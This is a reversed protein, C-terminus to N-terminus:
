WEKAAMGIVALQSETVKRMMADMYINFLPPLMFCDQRLTTTLPFCDGEEGDIRVFSSNGVYWIKLLDSIMTQIGYYKAVQWVGEKWVSHYGRELVMFSCYIPQAYEWKKEVM